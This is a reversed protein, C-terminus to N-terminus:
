KSFKKIVLCGDSEMCPWDSEPGCANGTIRNEIPESFIIKKNKEVSTSFNNPILDESESGYTLNFVLFLAVIWIFRFNCLGRYTSRNRKEM